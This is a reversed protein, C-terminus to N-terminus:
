AIRPMVLARGTLQAIAVASRVQRIQHHVLAM